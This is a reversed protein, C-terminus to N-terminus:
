APPDPSSLVPAYRGPAIIAAPDLARKLKSVIQWHEPARALLWGMSGVDVRYPLFGGKAGEDLLALHCVRAAERETSSALDFLVPVTALFCRDSVSILSILPEFGRSLMVSQVMESFRRVADPKMEVAPVYWILGCGDRAPDLPVSRNLPRGSKWYALPLAMENPHGSVLDLSSSLTALKRAIGKSVFPAYGVYRQLLNAAQPSVFILGSAVPSVISRIEKQAAAVIRKTGYLTGFITWPKVRYAATLRELLAVPMVKDSGLQERPYPAALALMRHANMVNIGGLVGPLNRLVVQVSSITQELAADTRVGFLFAKISEPRHALALTMKTVIGFGGQAFLGDLYPGVGYRFGRGGSSADMAAFPSRYLSGDPLVAEISTVASFHDAFPTIGHGRELANGMISVSPGAGTTPVLFPLGHKELYSSLEGQTVGPEITVLGTVPDPPEVIRNLRSLNVVICGDILPVSTGYGWNKGTSVPFLPVSCEGALKVIAVVQERDRPFVVAVISRAVGTTCRAYDAVARPEDMVADTGLLSRLQDLLTQVQQDLYSDLWVLSV